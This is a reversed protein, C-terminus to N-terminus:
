PKHLILLLRMAAAQQKTPQRTGTEIRSVMQQTMGLKEALQKQSMGTKKRAAKFEASTM